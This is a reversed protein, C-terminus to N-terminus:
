FSALGHRFFAFLVVQLRSFMVFVGRLVMAGCGFVMGSSIVFLGAVVGMHGVPVAGVGLMVGFFGALV